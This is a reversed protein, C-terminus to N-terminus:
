MLVLLKAPNWENTGNEDMKQHSYFKTAYVYIESESFCVVVAATTAATQRGLLSLAVFQRRGEM